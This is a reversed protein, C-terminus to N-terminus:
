QDNDDKKIMDPFKMDSFRYQKTVHLIFYYSHRNYIYIYVNIESVLDM